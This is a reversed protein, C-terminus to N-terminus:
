PFICIFEQTKFIERSWHLKLSCQFFSIFSVSDAYCVLVFSLILLLQIFKHAVINFHQNIATEGIMLSTRIGVIAKSQKDGVHHSFQFVAIGFSPRSEFKFYPHM